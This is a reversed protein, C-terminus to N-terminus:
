IDLFSKGEAIGGLIYLMKKFPMFTYSTFNSRDRNGHTIYGRNQTKLEFYLYKM